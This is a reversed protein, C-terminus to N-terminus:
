KCELDNLTSDLDADAKKDQNKLSEEFLDLASNFQKKAKKNELAKNYINDTSKLASLIDIDDSQKWNRFGAVRQGLEKALRNAIESNKLETILGMDGNEIALRELATYIDEKYLGEVEAMEGNIIALADDLRTKVFNDAAEAVQMMDRRTNYRDKKLLTNNEDIERALASLRNQLSNKNGGEVEYRATDNLLRATRLTNATEEDTTTEIVKDIARNLREETAQEETMEGREVLRDLNTINVARDFWAKLEPKLEGLKGWTDKFYKSTMDNYINRLEGQYDKLLKEVAEKDKDEINIFKSWDENTMIWAEYARAFTESAKRPVQTANEEIGLAKELAGWARMFEPTAKGSRFRDFNVEMWDHALEHSLTSADMRNARQIFRYAPIYAGRYDRPGAGSVRNQFLVDGVSKEIDQIGQRLDDTREVKLGKEELRKSVNDFKSDTPVVAGVFEEIRVIRQPKAEFYHRSLNQIAKVIELGEELIKGDYVDKKGFEYNLASQITEKTPKKASAARGLAMYAEEKQNLSYTIDNSTMFQSTYNDMAGQIKEIDQSADEKSKLNKGIEKIEQISSLKKAGSAIVKGSGYVLSKQANVGANKIMSKAINELTWDELKKGVAVKPEGLLDEVQKTAWKEYDASDKIKEDLMKSLELKDVEYKGKSRVYEKIDQVLHYKHSFDFKDGSYYQRAHEEYVKAKDGYETFDFRDLLDQIPKTIAADLDDIHDIKNLDIASIEEIFKEDAKVFIMSNDLIKKARDYTPVDFKEGLVNEIYYLKAGDSYVFSDVAEEPRSSQSAYYLISGDLRSLDDAKEFADRFKDNFKSIDARKANKYTKTPFTISWIDRDYVKNAPNSPDIMNKTGILSISGFDTLPATAKTIAISPMPLGGLDLSKELNNLSIGHVVVLEKKDTPEEEQTQFYINGTDSSYTGRNDVSKIQNPEFVVYYIEGDSSFMPAIIGDYGQEKAAKTIADSEAETITAYGENKKPKIGLAKKARSKFTADKDKLNLPNQIKLYLPLVREKGYGSKWESYEKASQEINTFYFGTGLHGSDYRKGTKLQFENFEDKTGHYVVLPRGQEDVVKSDGFWKYFNRLAEKSKAIRDGNSNYVSREKGDVEITDGEYAPYIDDLRANEDALDFQEQFEVGEWSAIDEETYEPQAPEPSEKRYQTLIARNWTEDDMKDIMEQTYGARLLVANGSEVNREINALPIQTTGRSQAVGLDQGQLLEWNLKALKKIQTGSLDRTRFGAKSLLDTIVSVNGGQIAKKTAKEKERNVFKQETERLMRRVAMADNRALDSLKELIYQNAQALKSELEDIKEWNKEEKKQEEALQDKLGKIEDNLATIEARRNEPIADRFWGLENVEGAFIPNEAIDIGREASDMAILGYELDTTADIIDEKNEIDIDRYMLAVKQRLNTRLAPDQSSVEATNDIMVNAIEGAQTDTINPLAQKIGKVLNARGVHFSATGLSGGIFLGWVASNLSDIFGERWTKNSSGDIKRMLTETLGQLLEETAEGAGIKAGAKLLGSKLGVKNLAGAFIPEVGGMMEIQAGIAGYAMATIGTADSATFNEFKKDGTRELYQAATEEAYQGGMEVGIYGKAINQAIRSAALRGAGFARATGFAGKGLTLAPVMAGIIEGAKNYWKSSDINRAQRYLERVARRSEVDSTTEAIVRRAINHSPYDRNELLSIAEDYTKAREMLEKRDIDAGWLGVGIIKILPDIASLSDVSTLPKREKEKGEMTELSTQAIANAMNPMFNAISDVMARTGVVLPQVAKMYPVSAQAPIAVPDKWEKSIRTSRALDEGTIFRPGTIDSEALNFPKEAVMSDDYLDLDKGLIEAM